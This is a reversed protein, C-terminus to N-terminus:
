HFEPGPRRDDPVFRDRAPMKVRPLSAADIVTTPRIIENRSLIWAVLAYIESAGLSGPASLPMARNIYDYLTTAYPWYNGVTRKHKLSEAFPFGERPERGVLAPGPPMGAPAASLGEGAAGHCSACNAAFISEGEAATGRGAPLGAGAPNVDIDWAAIETETAPRGIGQGSATQGDGRRAVGTILACVVAVLRLLRTQLSTV